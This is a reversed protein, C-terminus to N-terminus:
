LDRFLSRMLIFIISLLYEEYIIQIIVFVKIVVDDDNVMILLVWGFNIFVLILVMM